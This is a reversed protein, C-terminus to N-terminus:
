VLNSTLRVRRASQPLLTATGPPPETISRNHDTYGTRRNRTARYLVDNYTYTHIHICIYIYIYM